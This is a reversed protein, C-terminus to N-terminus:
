SEITLPHLLPILLFLHKLFRSINITSAELFIPSQAGKTGLARWYIERHKSKSQHSLRLPFSRQANTRLWASDHPEMTKGISIKVM